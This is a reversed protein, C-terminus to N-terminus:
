TRTRPQYAPRSARSANRAVARRAAIILVGQLDGSVAMDDTAVAGLLSSDPAAAMSGSAVADAAIVSGTLLSPPAAGLAGSPAADDLLLTGALSTGFALYFERTGYVVGNKRREAMGTHLGIPGEAEVSGDDFYRFYTLLPPVSTVRYMFEDAAEAPLTPDDKLISGGHLGTQPIDAGRVGLGGVGFTYASANRQTSFRYTM